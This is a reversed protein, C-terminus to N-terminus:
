LVTRRVDIETGEWDQEETKPLIVRHGVAEVSWARLQGLTVHMLDTEAWALEDSAPAISQTNM